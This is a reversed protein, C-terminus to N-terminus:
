VGFVWMKIIAFFERVYNVSVTYWELGAHIHNSNLGANKALQSARYAHFGNTVFATTYGDPFREDLINKSYKFNEYTSTAQEEKMILHEPINKNLLYQEMAYAETVNEQPGKGGSVIIVAFPNKKHYDVARDLRRALPLSVVDGQVAAGLVILAHEQYTTNDTQGYAGAFLMTGLMFLFCLYAAYRVAKWIGKEMIRNIKHFLVGYVLLVLGLAIVAIIGFHFNTCLALFFANGILFIGSLALIIQIFM